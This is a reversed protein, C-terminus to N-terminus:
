QNENVTNVLDEGNALRDLNAAIFSWRRDLLGASWGSAHPSMLINDLDQFPFESPMLPTNDKPYRYWTDIIAGGITRDRCAEYLAKEEIIDGRGWM